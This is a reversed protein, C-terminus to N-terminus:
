LIRPYIFRLAFMYFVNLSLVFLVTRKYGRAASRTRAARVPLAVLGVVVSLLLLKDM